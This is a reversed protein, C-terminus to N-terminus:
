MEISCGCVCIYIYVREWAVMVHSSPTEAVPMVETKNVVKADSATITYNPPESESSIENTPTRTGDPAIHCASKTTYWFLAVVPSSCFPSGSSPIDPILPILWHPYTWRIPLMWPLFSSHYCPIQLTAFDVSGFQSVNCNSGLIVRSWIRLSIFWWFRCRTPFGSNVRTPKPQIEDLIM